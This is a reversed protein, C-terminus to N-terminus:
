NITLQPMGALVGEVSPLSIAGTQAQALVTYCYAWCNDRWQKLQLGETNFKSITSGVYSVASLINDYGMEASKKDLIAQVAAAVELELQKPDVFEVVYPTPIGGTSLWGQYEAEDTNPPYNYPAVQVKDSDRTVVGTQLNHTFM